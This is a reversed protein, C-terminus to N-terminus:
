HYSEDEKEMYVMMYEKTTGQFFSYTEHLVNIQVRKFLKDLETVTAAFSSDDRTLLFVHYTGKWKNKITDWYFIVNYKKNEILSDNEVFFFHDDMEEGDIESQGRNKEATSESVDSESVNSELVDVYLNYKKIYHCYPIYFSSFFSQPRVLLLTDNQAIRRKQFLIDM